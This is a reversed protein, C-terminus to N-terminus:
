AKTGAAQGAPTVPLEDGYDEIFEEIRDKQMPLLRGFSVCLNWVEKGNPLAAVRFNNVVKFPVKEVVINEGPFFITLHEAKKLAQENSETYHVALGKMGIDKLPGIKVYSPKLASLLSQKLVTVIAGSVAFRKWIRRERPPRPSVKFRDEGTPEAKVTERKVPAERPPNREAVKERLMELAEDLQIGMESCDVPAQQMDPQNAM